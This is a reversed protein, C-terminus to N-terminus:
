IDSFSLIIDWKIVSEVLYLNRWVYMGNGVEKGRVKKIYREREGLIKGKNRKYFKVVYSLIGFIWCISKYKFSMDKM